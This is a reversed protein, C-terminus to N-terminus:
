DVYDPEDEKGFLVGVDICEASASARAGKVDRYISVVDFDDFDKQLSASIRIQAILPHLRWQVPRAGMLHFLKQQLM